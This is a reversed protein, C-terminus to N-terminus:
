SVSRGAPGRHLFREAEEFSGTQRCPPLSELFMQGYPRTRLRPDLVAVLGRDDHSRILRGFGQRFTLIAEPLTDELFPDGGRTRIAEARAEAMPHGPVEFPLRTIVVLRLADGPVDVGQWFTMTGLLVGRRTLRFRELVSSALGPEHRFLELGKLDPDELLAAHVRRLLAYSTFLLFAGGGSALLLRRCERLVGEAFGHPDSGPDPVAAPLYLLAQREFDYPSGLITEAASAIGLRRRLHTFSGGAALTASTLVVRRADEFLRPRLVHAVEIPAVRLTAGEQRPACEVWYVADPVRQELFQTVRERLDRTRSGLSGLVLAETPDAGRAREELAEELEFLPARLRDAVAGPARVRAIPAYGAPTEPGSGPADRQAALGLQRMEAFFERAAEELRPVIAPFLGGGGRGRGPGARRPRRGRKREGLDQLLGGVSRDSVSYGFQATVSEEVRHAEDLIVVSHPPLIRGGSKLDLFFLAHNVILLDADRSRALDRRYLCSEWFPGRAGQCIERDRRVREWIADPVPFPIESRLGTPASRAHRDLAQLVEASSADVLDAGSLTWESLRQICLYNESGMLLAHRFSIGAPELARELFPLDKRALQEQLARTHTSIVVRREAQPLSRDRTAYLIAPVLYALSKGIGTGAEILLHRGSALAASVDRAMRAQQPRPEFSPLARALPGGPAFLGAVEAIVLSEEM